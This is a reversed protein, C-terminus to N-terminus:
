STFRSLVKTTLLVHLQKFFPALDDRQYLWDNHKSLYTQLWASWSLRRQRLLMYATLIDSLLDVSYINPTYSPLLTIPEGIAEQYGLLIHNFGCFPANANGGGTRANIEIVKFVDDRTDRKVEAVFPGHYQLQTLYQVIIPHVDEVHSIPVSVFASSVTFPRSRLEQTVHLGMLQSAKNFYGRIIYETTVPGPIIEQIMVDIDRRQVLHLYTQLEQANHAIFGKRQFAQVFIQSISPKIYVPFRLQPVIEAVAIEDSYFTTPHPIKYESLSKYFRRKITCTEIADVPPISAVCHPLHPLVHALTLVSLDSTPHVYVPHHASQTVSHLWQLMTERHGELAPVVNYGKCYRSLHAFQQTDPIVCYVAIGHQGLTRIIGLANHTGGIVIAINPYSKKNNMSIAQHLM